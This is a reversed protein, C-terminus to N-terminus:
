AAHRIDEKCCKNKQNHKSGFTIKQHKLHSKISCRMSLKLVMRKLQRSELDLENINVGDRLASMSFDAVYDPLIM